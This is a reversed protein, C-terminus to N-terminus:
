RCIYLTLIMKFPFYRELALYAVGIVEMNTKKKEKGQKVPFVRIYAYLLM